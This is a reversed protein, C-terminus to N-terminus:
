LLWSFYYLLFFNEGKIYEVLGLFIMGTIVMLLPFGIFIPFPSILKDTDFGTIRRYYFDYIVNLLAAIIGCILGALLARSFSTTKAYKDKIEM